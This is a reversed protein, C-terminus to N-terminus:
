RKLYKEVVFFVVALILLWTHEALYSIAQGAAKFLFSVISGILGPLASAAQKGIAKLGNSVAKGLKKLAKTIAGVVAGITIGAALFISTVTVGYKKFIEKVKEFLSMNEELRATIQRIENERMAVREEALRKEELDADRDNIIKKDEEDAKELEEKRKQLNEREEDLLSRTKGLKEEFMKEETELKGYAENLQLFKDKAAQKQEPPLDPDLTKDLEMRKRQDIYAKRKRIAKLAESYNSEEEEEVEEEQISELTQIQEELGSKENEAQFSSLYKKRAKRHDAELTRIKSKVKDIERQPADANELSELNQQQKILNERIEDMEKKNREKQSALNDKEKLEKRKENTRQQLKEYKSPGLATKIEKPLSKNIQEEGTRRDTTFLSYQKKGAGFMKIQLKGKPNYWVELESSSMDPYLNKTAVWAQESTSAASFSTEFYSMEQLGNKEHMKHITQMEIEEGSPAPTSAGNPLFPTTEDGDDYDYDPDYAPNDFSTTEGGEAM